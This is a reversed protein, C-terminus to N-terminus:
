EKDKATSVYAIGCGVPRAEGTKPTKGALVAEVAEVAYTKEVQDADQWNDDWAGMYVVKRDKNIVFVHPTVTAGYAKGSKQTGDHAYAYKLGQKKSFSKMADLVPDVPDVSCNVALFGVPKSKYKAIFENFRKNYAQAVPCDNCTFVLVLADKDAFDSTSYTKGDVAQLGEFKPAADGVDLKTNYEGAFTPAAAASLLLATGWLWRTVRRVPEDESFTEDRRFGDIRRLTFRSPSGTDSM